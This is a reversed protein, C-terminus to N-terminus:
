YNEEGKRRLNVMKKLDVYFYYVSVCAYLVFCAKDASFSISFALVLLLAPLISLLPINWLIFSNLLLISKFHSLLLILHQHRIGRLKCKFISALIIKQIILAIFLEDIILSIIVYWKSDFTLAIMVLVVIILVVVRLGMLLNSSRDLYVKFVDSFSNLAKFHQICLFLGLVIAFFGLDSVLDKSFKYQNASCFKIYQIEFDIEPSFDSFIHIFVKRSVSDPQCVYRISFIHSNEKQIKTDLISIISDEEYM